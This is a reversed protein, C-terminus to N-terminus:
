RRGQKVIEISDCANQFGMACARSFDELAREPNSSWAYAVGRNYNALVFDPKIAIIRTFDGIAETFRNMRSYTNARDNLANINEPDRQLIRNYEEIAHIFAGKKVFQDATILTEGVNVSTVFQDKARVYDDRAKEVDGMAMYIDGRVTYTKAMNSPSMDANEWKESDERTKPFFLITKNLDDLALLYEGKKAFATGRNNYGIPKEPSKRIVDEWLKVEDTWVENRNYTGISLPVCILISPIIVRALPTVNRLLRDSILMIVFAGSMFFGVSPLYVRHEFIVDKIPIVSSEVSITIFFWFIGFGVMRYSVYMEMDELITSGKRWCYLAGSFLSVLLLFSAVVRPEFFKRSVPFDYILRLGVPLLITKLYVVVARFQTYLYNLSSRETLDSIKDVRTIEAVRAGRDLLGWDPGFISLPIIVLTAAFPLLYLFRKKGLVSRSFVLTEILLLLFPITFSIEKTKMALVTSIIAAVYLGTWRYRQEQQIRAKIFLYVAFIYFFVALSTFRQTVYSVAQTQIPHVLFILAALFISYRHFDSPERGGAIVKLLVQLLLFVLLSNGIHLIVNFLHYGFPDDQGIIYNLAFTFYGIQRPDSMNMSYLDTIAPNGVVYDFDDFLFVSNLLVNSYILMGVVFFFFAVAILSMKNRM